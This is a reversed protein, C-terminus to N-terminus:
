PGHHGCVLRHVFPAAVCGEYNMFHGLIDILMGHDFDSYEVQLAPTKILLSVRHPHSIQGGLVCATIATHMRQRVVIGADLFALRPTGDPLTTIFVNGPHLDGHVFNHVFLM